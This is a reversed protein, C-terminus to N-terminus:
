HELKTFFSKRKVAKAVASYTVMASQDGRVADFNTCVFFGSKTIVPFKFENSNVGDVDINSQLMGLLNGEKKGLESFQIERAEELDYIFHERDYNKTEPNYYTILGSILDDSYLFVDLWASATVSWRTDPGSADIQNIINLTRENWKLYKAEVWKDFGGQTVEPYIFDIIFSYESQAHRRLLVDKVAIASGYIQTSDNNINVKFSADAEESIYVYTGALEGETVLLVLQMCLQDECQGMLRVCENPRQWTASVVGMAEVILICDFSEEGVAGNLITMRPEFNKLLILGEEMLRIDASRSMDVSWWQGSFRDEELTGILFGTHLGNEDIENLILVNRDMKGILHFTANDNLITITGKYNTGDFGLSMNIPHMDNVTGDLHRVWAVDATQDFMNRVADGDQQGYTVFACCCFLILVGIQRASKIV